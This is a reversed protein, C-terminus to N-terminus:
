RFLYNLFSMKRKTWFTEVLGVKWAGDERFMQLRAPVQSKRYTIIIEARDKHIFGIEWLSQDLVVNVDLDRLFAGWFSRFMVGQESFDRLVQDRSIDGNVTKSSEYVDTVIEQQSHNTLLGWATAYENHQFAFFLDEAATLLPDVSQFDYPSSQAYLFQGPVLITLFLIVSALRKYVAKVRGPGSRLVDM